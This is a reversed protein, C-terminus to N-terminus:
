EGTKSALYDVLTKLERATVQDYFGASELTNAMVEGPFGEAITADPEMIAEFIESRSLRSGTDHLSPGVMRTPEDIAHCANCQYNEFLERGDLDEAESAAASPEEAAAASASPESPAQRQYELETDMTVTPTGGLSQLYAIVALIEHDSLDVPPQAVPPMGPNFGEVVYANPEYLSEALYEVDGYGERREGARVGINALDPFRLAGEEGITHCSMCGGKGEVIEQGVQVMEDTTMDASLEMDEPPYARQQPVMQGVYTYFAVVLLTFGFIKLTNSM